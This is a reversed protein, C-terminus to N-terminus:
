LLKVRPQELSSCKEQKGIGHWVPNINSWYSREKYSGISKATLDQIEKPTGIHKKKCFDAKNTKLVAFTM